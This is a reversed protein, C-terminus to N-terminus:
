IIYRKKRLWDNCVPEDEVARVGKAVFQDSLREISIHKPSMLNALHWRVHNSTSGGVPVRLRTVEHFTRRLDDESYEWPLAAGLERILALIAQDGGDKWDEYRVDVVPVVDGAEEILSNRRRILSTCLEAWKEDHEFASRNSAFMKFASVTEERLDRYSTFLLDVEQSFRRAHAPGAFVYYQHATHVKVLISTGMTRLLAIRDFNTENLDEPVLKQLMWNSSAVTNPDRMRMLVRLINFIFTSGTRPAGGAIVLIPKPVGRRETFHYPTALRALSPGGLSPSLLGAIKNAVALLGILSFLSTLLPQRLLLNRLLRQMEQETPLQKASIPSPGLPRCVYAM